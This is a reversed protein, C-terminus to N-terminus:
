VAGAFERKYGVRIMAPITLSGVTVANAVSSGSLMGFMASGFVSVKAPGGAYRGAVSSAIDLFLQGLGIRTALVGFLVFHFVYTAVVGVAVGYIGQSTLYQHNIFQSWSSGAHQLLGPFVKGFLAYFTFVLAIIPLPWGMSRRTAELLTFFLVSGMIVDLLGPNGVRMALDDFIYPIYLVSAACVLALLWDVLPIGGPSLLSHRPKAGASHASFGFVLFILGLVFALHVGRHTTERLLGFGATYYHFGSLIILLWKIIQTAPPVYPRFRMEPDFKEELELLTKPDPLAHTM